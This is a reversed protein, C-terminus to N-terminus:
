DGRERWWSGSDQRALTRVHRYAGMIQPDLEKPIRAHAILNMWEDLQPFLRWAREANFKYTYPGYESGSEGEMTHRYGHDVVFAVWQPIWKAPSEVAWKLMAKSLNHWGDFPLGDFAGQHIKDLGWSLWYIVYPSGSRLVRVAGKTDLESIREALGIEILSRLESRYESNDIIPPVSSDTSDIFWYRLDAALPMHRVIVKDLTSSLTDKLESQDPRNDQMMAWVTGIGPCRSQHEWRRASQTIHDLAIEKLLRCLSTSDFQLVFSRLAAARKDDAVLERVTNSQREVWERIGRLVYQDSEASVPREMAMYRNWYNIHTACSLAQPKSKAMRDVNSYQYSGSYGPLLEGVLVNLSIRKEESGFKDIEKRIGRMAVSEDKKDKTQGIITTQDSHRLEDIEKDLIAFLNPAASRITSAILIDDYDVEGSLNRWVEDCLRLATRLDRATQLLIAIAEPGRIEDVGIRYLWGQMEAANGPSGYTQRIETTAPDIMEGEVFVSLSRERYKRLLEWVLVPNLWPPKEVYRVIKTLDFRSELSTDAIVISFRMRLDLEHFLARIAGLMEHERQRGDASGLEDTGAFRELDEVWLLVDMNLALAVEDLKRLISATDSPLRLLSSLGKLGGGINEVVRLYADPLGTLGLLQVHQGFAKLMANLIGRIAASQTEYRWLSITVVIIRSRLLPDTEIESVVLNKISSKGSGRPGILAMTPIRTVTPDTCANRIRRFMRNAVRSAGFFDERVSIIPDDNGRIWKLLTDMDLLEAPDSAGSDDSDTSYSETMPEIYEPGNSAEDIRKLTYGVLMLGVVVFMLVILHLWVDIQQLITVSSVLSLETAIHQSTSNVVIALIGISIILSMALGPYAFPHRIGLIARWRGRGHPITIVIILVISISVLLASGLEALTDSANTLIVGLYQFAILIVATSVVSIVLVDIWRSWSARFSEPPRRIFFKFFM